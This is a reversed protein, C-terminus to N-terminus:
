AHRGPNSFYSVSMVVPVLLAVTACFVAIGTLAGEVLALIIDGAERCLVAFSNPYGGAVLVSMLILVSMLVLVREHRMVPSYQSYQSYQSNHTLASCAM